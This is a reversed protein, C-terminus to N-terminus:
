GPPTPPPRAPPTGRIPSARIGPRSTAAEIYNAREEALLSKLYEQQDPPLFPVITPVLDYFDLVMEDIQGQLEVFVQSAYEM